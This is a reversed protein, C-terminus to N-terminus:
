HTMKLGSAKTIYFKDEFMKNADFPDFIKMLLGVAIGSTIGIGVTIGVYQLM